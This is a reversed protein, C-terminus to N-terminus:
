ALAILLPLAPSTAAGGIACDCNGCVRASWSTPARLTRLTPRPLRPSFQADRPRRQRFVSRAKAGLLCLPPWSRIDAALTAPHPPGDPWAATAACCGLMPLLASAPAWTRHGEADSRRGCLRGAGGISRDVLDARHKGTARRPPTTICLRTRPLRALPDQPQDAVRRHVRTSGGSCGELTRRGSREDPRSGAM